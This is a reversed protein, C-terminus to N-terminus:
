FSLGRVTVNDAVITLGRFIEVNEGPTIAVVPLSFEKVFTRNLRGSKTTYGPQTKGDVILGPSALPPLIKVLRITTQKPPLKFEIRSPVNPNLVKVQNRESSSLQSLALSGNVLEIAERLTLFTDPTITGDRDSNVIVRMPLVEQAALPRQLLPLICAFVLLGYYFNPLKKM